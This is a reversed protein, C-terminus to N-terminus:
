RALEEVRARRDTAVVARSPSRDPGALAMATIVAAFACLAMFPLSVFGFQWVYRETCPAAATCFSSGGAPPFAQIWSHYAAIVLGIAAPAIVYPRINTDRRWAAIGLVITLPYLCIRQFWCLQCPVFHAVESFYLSGATGVLAVVFALPLAVARLDDRGRGTVLAVVGAAVGALALLALVAFFLSM